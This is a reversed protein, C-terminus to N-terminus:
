AEEGLLLQVYRDVMDLNYAVSEANCTGLTNEWFLRSSRVGNCLGVGARLAERGPVFRMSLDVVRPRGAPPPRRVVPDLGWEVLVTDDTAETAGLFVVRSGFREVVQEKVAELDYGPDYGRAPRERVVGYRGDYTAAAEALGADYAALYRPPLLGRLWEHAQEAFRRRGAPDGAGSGTFAARGVEWGDPGLVPLTAELTMREASGQLVLGLADYADGTCRSPARENSIFTLRPLYRSHRAVDVLEHSAYIVAPADDRSFTPDAAASVWRDIDALVEALHEASHVLGLRRGPIQTLPVGGALQASLSPLGEVEEVQLLVFEDIVFGEAVRRARPGFTAIMAATVDQYHTM